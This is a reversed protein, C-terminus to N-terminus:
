FDRGHVGNPTDNYVHTRPWYPNAVPPTADADHRLHASGDAFLVPRPDAAEPYPRLYAREADWFVVKAAPSAVDSDRIIHHCEGFAPPSDTWVSPDNYFTNSYHYSPKRWTVVDGDRGQWPALEPADGAGPSLWTEYHEAWPFLAHVRPHAPWHDRFQWNHTGYSIAHESDVLEPFNYLRAGPEYYLFAGDHDSQYATMTQGISRLNALSAVEAASEKTSVLAPLLIALLIAIVGLAIMLEIITVARRM